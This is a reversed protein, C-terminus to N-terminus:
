FFTVGLDARSALDACACLFDRNSIYICMMATEGGYAKTHLKFKCNFHTSDKFLLQM